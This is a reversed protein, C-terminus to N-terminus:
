SRVQHAHVRTGGSLQCRVNFMPINSDRKPGLFFKFDSFSWLLKTGPSVKNRTIFYNKCRIGFTFCLIGLPGAMCVFRPLDVDPEALWPKCPMIDAKLHPKDFKIDHLFTPPTSSGVIEMSSFLLGAIRHRNLCQIFYKTSTDRRQLYGV